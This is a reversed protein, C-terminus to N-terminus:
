REGRARGKVLMDPDRDIDEVLERFAQAADGIERLVRQLEPAAGAAGAGLNGLSDAARRASAILGHPGGVQDIAGTLRTVAGDLRALTAAARDGLRARDLHQALRRIEAVAAGAGAAADAIQRPVDRDSLEDLMAELKTLTSVARDVLEPLRQGVGELSQELGRITSTRAPVYRPGPAFPLEPPPNAVPDTFDIEVLKVGTLGQTSLQTRLAPNVDALGLRRAEDSIVALDVAVHKRDPAIAIASVNGIRVGRYKVPAGIDLGQVSEDFYTHYTETAPGLGRLGLAVAILVVAVLGALVLLGLRFNRTTSSM